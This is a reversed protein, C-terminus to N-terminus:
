NDADETKLNLTLSYGGLLWWLLGTEEALRQIQQGYNDHLTEALEEQATKRTEDDNIAEGFAEIKKAVAERVNSV